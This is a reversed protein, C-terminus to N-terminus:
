EAMFLIFHWKSCCPHVLPYQALHFLDSLSCFFVMIESTHLIRFVFCIFLCVLLPSLLILSWLLPQWLPSIPLPPFFNTLIYFFNFFLFGLLLLFVFYIFHFFLYESCDRCKWKESAVM